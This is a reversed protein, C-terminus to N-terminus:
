AARSGDYGSMCIRLHMYDVPGHRTAGGSNSVKEAFRKILGIADIRFFDWVSVRNGLSIHLLEFSICAM